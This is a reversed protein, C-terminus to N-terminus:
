KIYEQTPRQRRLCSAGGPVAGPDAAVRGKGQQGDVQDRGGRGDGRDMGGRGEGADRGRWESLLTEGGGPNSILTYFNYM